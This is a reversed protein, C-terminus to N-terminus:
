RLARPERGRACSSAACAPEPSATSSKSFARGPLRMTCLRWRASRASIPRKCPSSVGPPSDLGSAPQPSSRRVVSDTASRRARDSSCSCSIPREVEAKSSNGGKRLRGSSMAGSARVKRVSAAALYLRVGRPSEGCAIADRSSCSNRPFRRSSRAITSCATRWLLPSQSVTSSRASRSARGESSAPESSIMRRGPDESLSISSCAIRREKFIAPPRSTRAASSRPIM